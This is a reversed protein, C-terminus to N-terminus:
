TRSAESLKIIKDEWAALAQRMESQYGFRNYIAAVGSITGSAHNLIREVVHPAVGLGAMHTAATRRLDHLTWDAIGCDTDFRRKSKSFGSFTAHSNGRAPFLRENM